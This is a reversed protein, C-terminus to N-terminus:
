TKLTCNPVHHRQRCFTILSVVGTKCYLWSYMADAKLTFGPIYQMQKWPYFWSYLAQGLTSDPIYHRQRWPLILFITGTKVTSDPIYQRQRLPLILFLTGTKVPSEPIYQSQRWPLILFVSGRNESFSCAKERKLTYNHINQVRRWPVVLLM